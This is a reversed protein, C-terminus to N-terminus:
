VSKTQQCFTSYLAEHNQVSDEEKRKFKSSVRRRDPFVGTRSGRGSGPEGGPGRVAPARLLADRRRPADHAAPLAGPLRAGGGPRAAGGPLHQLADGVPVPSRVHFSSHSTFSHPALM